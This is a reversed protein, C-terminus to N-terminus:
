VWLLNPAETILGLNLKRKVINLIEKELNTNGIMSSTKTKTENYVLDSLRPLKGTLTLNRRLWQIM